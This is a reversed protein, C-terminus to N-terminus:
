RCLPLFEDNKGILKLKEEPENRLLETLTTLYDGNVTLLCIYNSKAVEVNNWEVVTGGIERSSLM